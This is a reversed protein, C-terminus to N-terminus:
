CDELRVLKVNLDFVCALRVCAQQSRLDGTHLAFMQLEDRSCNPVPVDEFHVSLDVQDKNVHVMM